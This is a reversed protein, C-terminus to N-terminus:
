LLKCGELADVYNPERVHIVLEIELNIRLFFM